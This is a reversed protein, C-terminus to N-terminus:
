VSHFSCILSRGSGKAHVRAYHAQPIRYRGNTNFGLVANHERGDTELLVLVEHDTCGTIEIHPDEFDHILTRPGEGVGIKAVLREAMGVERDM